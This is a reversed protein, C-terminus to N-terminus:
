PSSPREKLAQKLTAIQSLLENRESEWSQRDREHNQREDNFQEQNSLTQMRLDDAEFRLRHLQSELDQSQRQLKTIASTWTTTVASVSVGTHSYCRLTPSEILIRHQKLEAISQSQLIIHCESRIPQHSIIFRSQTRRTSLRHFQSNWVSNTDWLSVRGDSSAVSLITDTCMALSTIRNASRPASTSMPNQSEATAAPISSCLFKVDDNLILSHMPVSLLTGDDFGIHLYQLSAMACTPKRNKPLAFNHLLEYQTSSDPHHMLVHCQSDSDIIVLAVGCYTLCAITVTSLSQSSTLASLKPQWRSIHHVLKLSATASLAIDPQSIPTPCRLKLSFNFLSSGLAVTLPWQAFRVNLNQKSTTIQGNGICLHASAVSSQSVSIPVSRQIIQTDLVTICSSSSPNSCNWNPQCILIAFNSASLNLVVVFLSLPHFSRNELSMTSNSPQQPAAPPELQLFFPCTVTALM